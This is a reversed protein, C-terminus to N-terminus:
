PREGAVSGTDRSLGAESALEDLSRNAAEPNFVEGLLLRLKAARDAQTGPVQLVPKFPHYDIEGAPQPPLALGKLVNEVARDYAERRMRRAEAAGAQRHLHGDVFTWVLRSFPSRQASTRTLLESNVAEFDPVGAAIKRLEPLNPPWERGEKAMRDFADLVQRETLGRLGNAWINGAVTLRGTGDIPLDGQMSTWKHGWVAQAALWLRALMGPAHPNVPLPEDSSKPPGARTETLLAKVPNIQKM